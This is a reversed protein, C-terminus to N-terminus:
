GGALILIDRAPKGERAPTELFVMRDKMKVSCIITMEGLRDSM